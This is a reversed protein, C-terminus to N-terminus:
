KKKKPSKEAKKALIGIIEESQKAAARILSRERPSKKRSNDPLAVMSKVSKIPDKTAGYYFEKASVDRHVKPLLPAAQGDEGTEPM